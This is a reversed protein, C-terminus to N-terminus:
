FDELFVDELDDGLDDRTKKTRCVRAVRYFLLYVMRFIMECIM